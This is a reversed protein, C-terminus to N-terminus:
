DVRKTKLFYQELALQIKINSRYFNLDNVSEGKLLIDTNKLDPLTNFNTILQKVRYYLAIDPTGKSLPLLCKFSTIYIQKSTPM